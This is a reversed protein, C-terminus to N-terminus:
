LKRPVTKEEKQLRSRDRGPLIEETMLRPLMWGGSEIMSM